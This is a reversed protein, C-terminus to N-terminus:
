SGIPSVWWRVNSPTVPAAASSECELSTVAPAEDSSITLMGTFAVSRSTDAPVAFGVHYSDFDVGAIAGCDGTVPSGGASILGEVVVLYTGAQSLTPGTAGSATAFQFGAGAAGAAGAAGTSGPAGQPGAPGQSGLPGQPGVPGRAGARLQGRAFDVARLSHNRVKVSTVAGNRLQVTGVSAAALRNAAYAGGTGLAVFLALVAIGNRRAFRLFSHM